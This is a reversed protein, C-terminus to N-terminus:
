KDYPNKIFKMDSIPWYVFFSQGIISNRKILGFERSDSSYPRNDGFVLFQDQPVTVPIGEKVFAGAYTKVDSRLYASEDLKKGNLYVDGDKIYVSDGAVGIVRKIFDKEANQPDVFVIVDGLKPEKFRYNILNTLVYQKDVFNPYMSKGSVQFPRFLFVYIALFISAAVLFTQLGDLLFALMKRIIFM